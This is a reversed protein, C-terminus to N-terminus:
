GKRSGDFTPKRKELFAKAGAKMNKPILVAQHEMELELQREFSNDMAADV